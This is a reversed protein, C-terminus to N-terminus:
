AIGQILLSPILFGKLCSTDRYLLIRIEKLGM